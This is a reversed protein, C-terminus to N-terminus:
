KKEMLVEEIATVEANRAKRAAKSKAKNSKRVQRIESSATKFKKAQWKAIHKPLSTLNSVVRVENVPTYAEDKLEPRPAKWTSKDKPTVNITRTIFHVTKGDEKVPLEYTYSSAQKPREELEAKITKSFTIEGTKLKSYRRASRSNFNTFKKQKERLEKTQKVVKLYTVTSPAAKLITKYEQKSIFKWGADQVFSVSEGLPIRKVEMGKQLCVLRNPNLRQEKAKRMEACLEKKAIVVEKLKPLIIDLFDSTHKSMLTIPRLRIKKNVKQVTTKGFVKQLEKVKFEKVKSIFKKDKRPFSTYKSFMEATVSNASKVDVIYTSM